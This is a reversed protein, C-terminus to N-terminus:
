PQTEALLKALHDKWVAAMTHTGHGRTTPEPLTEGGSFRFDRAIFDHEIPEPYDAAIAGRAILLAACALWCATLTRPLM